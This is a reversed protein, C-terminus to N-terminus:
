QAPIQVQRGDAQREIVGLRELRALEMHLSRPALGTRRQLARVHPADDPHTAFHILLRALAGSALAM